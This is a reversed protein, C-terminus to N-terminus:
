QCVTGPPRFVERSIAKTQSVGNVTYAFSATNGDGFTITATGVSTGVVAAPNFPVANFAPGTTRYLTGTYTGPTTKNATVVLWISSHDHDYTFWTAFITDGQHTFNIGWGSESGAPMKWWLDQYNTAQALNPQAGFACAPLTGFVERTINKTQSIGNVTYAFTGNNADTFNLTGTGVVTGAVQSPDFPVADFAPGTVTLLSGSFTNGGTHPATMVLWWGKGNLDYTFWSAFIVDGQHAFNIGWGSESGAPSRWWLGQYNPTYASTIRSVMNTIATPQVGSKQDYNLGYDAQFDWCGQYPPPSNKSDPLNQPYLVIINNTDAWRNYGSNVIFYSGVLSYSQSCGHLAVHLRCLAGNACSAPVYIWGESDMGNGPTVFAGQDFQILSGSLIGNNPPNLPGYIWQLVAGAGDFGCNTVGDGGCPHIGPGDINTPFAHTAPNTNDYRINSSPTFAKYLNVVQDATNPGVVTDNTGIFVYIKQNAINSVPDILTGSWKNMNAIPPGINPTNPYACGPPGSRWCDYNGGAFVGVGMFRSSYAVGLQQAMFAGSSFGSVSVQAPNANYAGLSSIAATALAGSVDSTPEMVEAGACFSALGLLSAVARTFAHITMNM